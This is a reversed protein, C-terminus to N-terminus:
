DLKSITENVTAVRLGFKTVQLRNVLTRGDGQLTLQQDVKLGGPMTYRIQARPGEVTVHVPGDADTLSGTYSSPSIRKITWRRIRPPKAGERITQDLVLMDGQRKGVSDVVLKAPSSLLKDLEGQGHTRGTFFHIPDLGPGSGPALM